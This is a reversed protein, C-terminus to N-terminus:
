IDDEGATEEFWHNWLADLDRGAAAEFAALLDDPTAIDFRHERYYRQVGDLFADHGIEDHIAKFGLPAKSYAAFSYAGSSPFDDTPTNVVQDNGSTVHSHFPGSLYREVMYDAAEEGYMAEFYLESSMYNTLGEDIFAHDYQNNGVMSYWWQHAVEHAVTFDLSNPPSLDRDSTYYSAGMYILTPFEVGAAGFLEVPALDLTTYPYPGIIENFYALSQAAYDLVAQGVREDGPNYYSTILTGDVEREVSEFDADLVMTLDRVPGSVVQWDTTSSTTQKETVVGTTVAHWGAPTRLTLAYAAMNSFIPDGFKSPPDLVWGREETWGALIPYWGAMAWTGREPDLNLIGYHSRSDVPMALDFTMEVTATEGPQLSPDLPVTVITRDASVEPEVLEGALTVTSVTLVKGEGPGNAYLRFPLMELPTGTTNTYEVTMVGHVRPQRSDRDALVVEADITYEAAVETLVASLEDRWEPLIAELHGAPTAPQADALVPVTGILMLLLPILLLAHRRLTIPLM